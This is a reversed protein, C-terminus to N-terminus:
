FFRSFRRKSLSCIRSNWKPFAFARKLDRPNGSARSLKMRRACISVRRASMARKSPLLQHEALLVGLHGRADWGSLVQRAAPGHQGGARHRREVGGRPAEATGPQAVAGVEAPVLETRKWRHRQRVVDVAHSRPRLEVVDPVAHEEFLHGRAGAHLRFRRVREHFRRVPVVRVQRQFCQHVVVHEEGPIVVALRQLGLM